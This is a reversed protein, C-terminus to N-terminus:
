KTVVPEAITIATLYVSDVVFYSRPLNRDGPVATMAPGRDKLLSLHVPQGPTLFTLQVGNHVYV